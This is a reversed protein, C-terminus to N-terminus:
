VRYLSDTNIVIWLEQLSCSAFINKILGFFM